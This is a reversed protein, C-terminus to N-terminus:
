QKDDSNDLFPNTQLQFRTQECDELIPPASDATKLVLKKTDVSALNDTITEVDQMMQFKEGDTQLFINTKESKKINLNSLILIMIAYPLIHFCYCFNFHCVIEFLSWLFHLLACVTIFIETAM